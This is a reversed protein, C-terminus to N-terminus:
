KFSCLPGLSVLYETRKLDPPIGPVDGWLKADRTWSATRSQWKWLLHSLAKRFKRRNDADAASVLFRRTVELNAKGPKAVMVDGGILIVDPRINRISALLQGNAEGFEKDHLDTLFVLTRPNRIKESYIATEEVVFHRREYGSRVLGVAAAAAGGAVVASLIKM